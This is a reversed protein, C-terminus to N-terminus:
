RQNQVHLLDVAEPDGPEIRADVWLQVEIPVQEQVRSGAEESSSRDPDCQVRRPCPTIRGANSAEGFEAHFSPPSGTSMHPGVLLDVVDALRM